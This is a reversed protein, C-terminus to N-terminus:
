SQFDFNFKFPVWCVNSAVRPEQHLARSLAPLLPTLIEQRIAVEECTDCVRGVCWAATDRVQLKFIGIM